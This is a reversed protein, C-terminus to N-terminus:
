LTMWLPATPTASGRHWQRRRLGVGAPTLWDAENEMGYSFRRMRVDLVSLVSKLHKVTIHWTIRAMQLIREGAAELRQQHAM